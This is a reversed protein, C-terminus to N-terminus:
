QIRRYFVLTADGYNKESIFRHTGPVDLKIHPPLSAIFLGGEAVREQLKYINSVKVADYPPDAIVIDFKSDTTNLWASISAKILKVDRSLGLAAINDAIALQANRDSDIAVASSAGRSVAEYSIAGSGAYADLVTLGSIDGLANFLAGRVKDSM